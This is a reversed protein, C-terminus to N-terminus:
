IFQPLVATIATIFILSIVVTSPILNASHKVYETLNRLTMVTNISGIPAFALVILLIKIESDFPLFHVAISLLLAILYRIFVLKCFIGLDAKNLAIALNSGIVVMCIFINAKGIASLPLDLFKPVQISFASLTIAILYAYTPFSKALEHLVMKANVTKGDAYGKNCLLAICYSGGFIFLANILDFFVLGLFAHPSLMNQMFPLVFNGVNFGALNMMAFIRFRGAKYCIFGALILVLNYVASILMISILSPDLSVGKASSLISCPLTIYMIIFSLKKSTALESHRGFENAIKKRIETITDQYESCKTDKFTIFIV